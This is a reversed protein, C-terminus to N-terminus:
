KTGKWSALAADECRSNM